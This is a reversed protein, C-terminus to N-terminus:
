NTFVYDEGPANVHCGICGAGAEVNGVRGALQMDAGNKDLSGDPLYKAWFWNGHGDDYGAERQFMITVATLYTDPDASVQDATITEGEPAAFNKKIILTGSHGSIDADLTVTELLQGHPMSGPYANSVSAGPGALQNATLYTWAASADEIDVPGGFPPAAAATDPTDGPTAVVPSTQDDERTLLYAAGAAVILIAAVVTIKGKGM